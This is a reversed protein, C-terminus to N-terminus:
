ALANEKRLAVTKLYSSLRRAKVEESKPQLQYCVQDCFKGRGEKVRHAPIFFERKCYACVCRVDNAQHRRRHESKTLKELNSFKDNRKDEDTHHLEHTVPVVEGTYLFWVAHSRLVFGTSSARPHKPMYVVFREELAHGEDWRDETWSTTHVKVFTGDEKRPVENFVRGSLM